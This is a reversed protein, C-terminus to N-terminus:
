QFILHLLYIPSFGSKCLHIPLPKRAVRPLLAFFLPIPRPDEELQPLIVMRVYVGLGLAHTSVLLSFPKNDSLEKSFIDTPSPHTHRKTFLTSAECIPNDINVSFIGKLDGRGDVKLDDGCYEGCVMVLVDDRGGRHAELWGLGLFGLRFWVRVGGGNVCEVFRHEDEGDVMVLASRAMVLKTLRYLFVSVVLRCERAEGGDILLLVVMRRHVVVCASRAVVLTSPQVNCKSPQYHCWLLMGLPVGISLAGVLPLCTRIRSSQRKPVSLAIMVGLPGYLPCALKKRTMHRETGWFLAVLRRVGEEVKKKPAKTTGKQEEELAYSTPFYTPKKPEAEIGVDPTRGIGPLLQVIITLTKVVLFKYFVEVDFIYIEERVLVALIAALHGREQLRCFWKSCDEFHVLIWSDIGIVM